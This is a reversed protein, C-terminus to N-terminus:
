KANAVPPTVAFDFEGLRVLLPRRGNLALPHQGRPDQYDAYIRIAAEGRCRGPVRVPEVLGPPLEFSLVEYSAPAGDLLARRRTFWEPATAPLKAAAATDHALVVDVRTASNWNAGEDSLFGLPPLRAQRCCGGLLILLCYIIPRM